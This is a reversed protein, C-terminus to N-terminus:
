NDNKFNGINARAGNEVNMHEVVVKQQGQNRYKNLAAVQNLFLRGVKAVRDAKEKDDEAYDSVNIFRKASHMFMRHMVTMQLLLMGEISDNPKASKINSLDCNVMKAIDADSFGLEKHIHFLDNIMIGFHNADEVGLPQSEEANFSVVPPDSSEISPDVFEITSYRANKSETLEPFLDKM